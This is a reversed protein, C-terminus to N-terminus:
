ADAKPAGGASFGETNPCGAADADEDGKPDAEFGANPLPNPALEEWGEANPDEAKPEPDPPIAVDFGKPAKPDLEAVDAGGGAVFEKAANDDFAGAGAGDDNADM